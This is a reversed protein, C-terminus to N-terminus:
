AKRGRIEFYLAELSRNLIKTEYVDAEQLLSKLLIPIHEKNPLIFLLEHQNIKEVPYSRYETANIRLNTEVQLKITRLYQEELSHQTGQAIVRGQDIFVYQDCLLEMQHLVHSCLLMTTGHEKNLEKLYHLVSQIGEPDLGNTPEDLFLMAPENLLAKALGLRKKMGTSYMGVAKDKHKSLDFRQLLHNIRKESFPIDYIQAFFRLNELGTIDHYFGASETVIGSMQRIPNGNQTPDHGGVLMRGQDPLIVGNLLRIMTTKGAGNPGLLGAIQGQQVNFNMETLVTQQQFSKSIGKVEIMNHM